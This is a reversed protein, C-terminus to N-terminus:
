IGTPTGKMLTKVSEVFHGAGTDFSERLSEFHNEFESM